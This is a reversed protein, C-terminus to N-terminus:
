IAERVASDKIPQEHYNISRLYRKNFRSNVADPGMLNPPLFYTMAPNNRSYVYILVSLQGFYLMDAHCPQHNCNEFRSSTMLQTNCVTVDDEGLVLRALELILPCGEILAQLM